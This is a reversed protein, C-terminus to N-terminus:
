FEISWHRLRTLVISFGMDLSMKEFEAKGRLVDVIRKCLAPGTRRTLNLTLTNVWISISYTEKSCGTLNLAAPAAAADSDAAVSYFEQSSDENIVQSRGGWIARQIPTTTSKITTRTIVLILATLTGHSRLTRYSLIVQLEFYHWYPLFM